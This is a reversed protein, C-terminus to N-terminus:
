NGFVILNSLRFNLKLSFSRVPVKLAKLHQLLAELSGLTSAQVYVGKDQLEFSSLATKLMIEIEQQYREIDSKERVIYLPFGAMAKDLNHALIKM